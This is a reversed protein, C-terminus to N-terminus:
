PRISRSATLQSNALEAQLAFLILGFHGADRVGFTTAVPEGETTAFICQMEHHTRLLSKSCQAWNKLLWNVCM